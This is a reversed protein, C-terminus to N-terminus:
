VEHRSVAVTLFIAGFLFPLAFILDWPNSGPLGTLWMVVQIGGYLWGIIAGILAAKRHRRLAGIGALLPAAGIALIAPAFLIGWGQVSSDALAVVVTYGGIIALGSGLLLWGGLRALRRQENSGPVGPKPPVGGSDNVSLV